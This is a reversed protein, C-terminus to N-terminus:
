NQNLNFMFGTPNVYCKGKQITREYMNIALNHEHKNREVAYATADAVDKSLEKNLALSMIQIKEKM